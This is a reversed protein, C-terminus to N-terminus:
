KGRKVFVFSLRESKVELKFNVIRNEATKTFIIDGRSYAFALDKVHRLPEDLRTSTVFITGNKLVVAYTALLEDCYYEGTFQSMEEDSLAKVAAARKATM